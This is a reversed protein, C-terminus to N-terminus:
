SDQVSSNHSISDLKEPLLIYSRWFTRSPPTSDPSPRGDTCHARRTSAVSGAAARAYLRVALMAMRAGLRTIRYRHSEPIREILGHLRLRRLDYTMPGAGYADPDRGLLQAVHARIDRHRFGTPLLSFLCLTHFLAHVRRDGFRL